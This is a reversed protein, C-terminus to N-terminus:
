KLCVHRILHPFFYLCNSCQLLMLTVFDVPISLEVLIFFFSALFGGHTCVKATIM